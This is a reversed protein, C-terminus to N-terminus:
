YIFEAKNGIKSTDNVFILTFGWVYDRDAPIVYEGFPRVGWSNYGALGQQKM